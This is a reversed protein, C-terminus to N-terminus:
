PQGSGAPVAEVDGTDSLQGTECRGETGRGNEPALLEDLKSIERIVQSKVRGAYKSVHGAPIGIRLAAERPRLGEKCCLRYAEWCHPEVKLRVNREAIELLELDFEESLREELDRRAQESALRQRVGHTGLEEQQAPADCWDRIRNHVVVYLWTRFRARSSDYSQLRLLLGAFVDQTVDLADADQLGCRCCWRYIIGSYRQVFLDWAEADTPCASLRLLLTTSGPLPLESM